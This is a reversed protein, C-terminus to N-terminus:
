CSKILKYVIESFKLANSLNKPLFIESVKFKLTLFDFNLTM